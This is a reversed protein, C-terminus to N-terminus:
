ALGLRAEVDSLDGTPPSAFRRKAELVRQCAERVREESLSGDKVAEMLADHMRPAADETGCVLAVDCGARLAKLAAEECSQEDAVARMDLDDTILCGEYGLEGRLLGEIIPRSFTAVEEPDLLPFLVHATMLAAVGARVAARFPVLEVAELRERDHTLVPLVQHSDTSTDGHGPFHKGCAATGEAQLAEVYAAGLRACLDPDSSFSREAIIPNAPNTNVDLVPALNMNIGVCRLERAVQRALASVAGEGGQALEGAPPPVTFPAELRVVWGGEQDVSLWLPVGGPGQAAAEQLQRCLSRVQAPELLNQKFLIVGGVLGASTWGLLDEPPEPGPFGVMLCQGVAAELPLTKASSASYTM